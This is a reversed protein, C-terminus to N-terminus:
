GIESNDAFNESADDDSARRRRAHGLVAHAFVALALAGMALATDLDQVQNQMFLFIIM